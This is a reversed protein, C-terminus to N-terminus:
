VGLSKKSLQTKGEEVMSWVEDKVGQPHVKESDDKHLYLM